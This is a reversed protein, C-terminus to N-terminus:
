IYGSVVFYKNGFSNDAKIENQKYAIYLHDVDYVRFTHPQKVPEEKRKVVVARQKVEKEKEKEKAVAVPKTDESTTTDMASLVLIVAVFLIFGVILLCSKPVALGQVNNSQKSKAASAAKAEAAAKRKLFDGLYDKM